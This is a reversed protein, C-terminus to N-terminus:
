HHCFRGISNRNTSWDGNGSPDPRQATCTQASCGLGKARATRLYDTGLVELMSSRNMRAILAMMYFGLTIAPLIVHRLEGYGSTPLLQLRVAFIMILMIGLWFTPVSQGFLSGAITVTDLISGRKMAAIMGAPVAILIAIAMSACALRLTAPFRELVVEAAPRHHRLSTGLNGHFVNAMYIVYQVHIPRDFGLAKRTEEIEKPSADSGAMATVPDFPVIRVLVFVLTLAGLLVIISHFLRRALFAWGM